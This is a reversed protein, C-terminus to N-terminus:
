GMGEVEKIFDTCAQAVERPCEIQLNHSANEMWQVKVNDRAPIRLKDLGPKERGRDGYLELIPIDTTNLFDYGDWKKWYTRFEEIEEVSWRGVVRKRLQANKSRQLPSLTDTIQGQFANEVVHHSTWGEISIVGKVSQPRVKAAQLSIMGGISHGGIYFSNLKMADVVKLADLSFREISCGKPPPWSGGHGRLEIVVLQMKGDLLDIFEKLAFSDNFSGPILILTPEPGQRVLYSCHGVDLDINRRVFKQGLDHDNDYNINDTALGEFGISLLAPKIWEVLRRPSESYNYYVIGDAGNDAVARTVECMQQEDLIPTGMDPGNFGLRITVLLEQGPKLSSKAGRTIEAVGEPTKGWAGAMIVDLSSSQGVGELKVGRSEAEPRLEILFQEETSRYYAELDVLEPVETRFQELTEPLDPPVSPAAAFYCKIHARVARRVAEVDVGKEQAAVVDAPNFSLDMLAAEIPRLHVGDREHHHGHIMPLVGHSRKRYDPAELRISHLPYKEALDAVMARVYAKAAPHGPSLAHPHSDGFVNQITAEPHLLGIRTNHLCVTWASVEMGVSQARECIVGFWDTEACMSAVAPKIPGDAYRSQTPHFYVVGDELMYVKRCPNYPRLFFGAHYSSTLDLRTIGLNRVFNIVEDLGEDAFDWPYIYLTASKLAM